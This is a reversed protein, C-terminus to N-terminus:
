RSAKKPPNRLVVTNVVRDHPLRRNPDRWLDFISIGLTGPIHLYGVFRELSEAITLRHGDIRAVRVGVMRKGVTAGRRTSLLLGFYLAAIGYLSLFRISRPIMEGIDVRITKPKLVAPASESFSLAFTYDYDHVAEYAEDLKGEEVATIAACPLGPAEIRALLPLVKKFAEIRAPQDANQRQLMTRLGSLAQPDNLSLSLVAVSVAVVISPIMIVLLDISLAIARRAPSALVAGALEPTVQLHKENFTRPSM